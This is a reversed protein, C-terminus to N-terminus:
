MVERVPAPTPVPQLRRFLGLPVWWVNRGHQQINLFCDGGGMDRIRTTIQGRTYTKFGSKELHKQLAKLTFYHRGTEEDEWPKGSLLDERSHGVYRDTLFEELLERFQGSTSVEQPAEIRVAGAMVEQVVKLWPAQAMSQYCKLLREMCVKHFRKYNQLDDTSMEIRVGDIDLFWLPPDTALVSLGSINPYDDEGGVGHKRTRCLASNCHSILPQDKCRYNYDKKRLSKLVITLEETSLPPTMFRQNMEELVREWTDPFKKKAFVGMALLGNNRTGEPFGMGALFQLCPPGGEMVEGPGNAARKGGMVQVVPLDAVRVSEAYQLFEDVTMALGGHKVAHRDSADGGFYPMNLWSGLDGKEVLVQAQKPFVEASGHGISAAVERLKAIVAAAPHPRSLFLYLHAGGSKSRVVVLPLGRQRLLEVLDHHSVDYRDIDIAGWHCTGDRRVPIVGLRYRGALHQEWLRVTVPERVTSASAKIELKQKTENRQETTYTGHAEMFGTLLNM